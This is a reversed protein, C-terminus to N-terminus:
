VRNRQFAAEILSVVGSSRVVRFTDRSQTNAAEVDAEDYPGVVDYRTLPTLCRVSGSRAREDAISVFATARLQLAAFLSIRGYGSEHTLVHADTLSMLYQDILAMRHSHLADDADSAGQLWVHRAELTSALVLTSLAGDHVSLLPSEAPLLPSDLHVHANGIQRRVKSPAWRKLASFRLRPDDTALFIYAGSKSQANSQAIMTHAIQQACTFFGNHAALTETVNDDSKSFRQAFAGDGVRVQVTVSYWDDRLASSYLAAIDDHSDLLAHLFPVFAVHYLCGFLNLESMRMATMQRRVNEDALMHTTMGRPSYVNIIRHHPSVFSLNAPIITREQWLTRIAAHFSRQTRRKKVDLLWPASFRAVIEVGFLYIRPLEPWTGPEHVLHRRTFLAFMVTSVISNIRDGAGSLEANLKWYLLDISRVANLQEESTHLKWTTARTVENHWRAYEVFSQMFAASCVAVSSAREFPLLKRRVRSATHAWREKLTAPGIMLRPLPFDSKHLLDAYRTHAARERMLSTMPTAVNMQAFMICKRESEFFPRIRRNFDDLAAHYDATAAHMDFHPIDTNRDSVTVLAPNSLLAAATVHRCADSTLFPWSPWIIVGDGDGGSAFVRWRMTEAGSHASLTFAVRSSSPVDAVVFELMRRSWWQGREGHDRARYRIGRHLYDDCEAAFANPRDNTWRAIVADRRLGDVIASLAFTVNNALLSCAPPPPLSLSSNEASMFAWVRVPDIAVVVHNAGSSTRIPWHKTFAFNVLFDDVATRGVAIANRYLDFWEASAALSEHNSPVRSDDSTNAAIAVCVLLLGAVILALSSSANPSDADDDDVSAM